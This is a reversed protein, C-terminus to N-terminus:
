LKQLQFFISERGELLAKNQYKTKVWWSPFDESSFLFLKQLKGAENIHESYSPHDTAILLSGGNKLKKYALELFKQSVIRRKHHRKKPWPDPFFLFIHSVSGDKIDSLFSRADKTFFRVNTINANFIKGATQILGDLFVECAVYLTNPNKLAFNVATEGNGSGIELVIDRASSNIENISAEFKVLFEEKLFKKQESTAGRTRQVGFSPLFEEQLM